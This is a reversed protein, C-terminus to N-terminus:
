GERHEKWQDRRQEKLGLLLLTKSISAQLYKVTGASAWLEAEGSQLLTEKNFEEIGLKITGCKEELEQSTCCFFNRIIM